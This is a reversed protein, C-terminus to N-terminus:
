GVRTREADDERDTSPRLEIVDLDPKPRNRHIKHVKGHWARTRRRLRRRHWRDTFLLVLLTTLLTGMFGISSIIEWFFDVSPTGSPPPHLLLM